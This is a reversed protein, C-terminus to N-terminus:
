SRKLSLIKQSREVIDRKKTHCGQSCIKHPQNFNPNHRCNCYYCSIQYNDKDHPKTNDIRDISFQYCCYPKWKVTLVIDNCVWCRSNQKRLMEIVDDTTIDGALDFRQKDYAKHGSIKRQINQKLTGCPRCDLCYFCAYDENDSHCCLRCLMVKCKACDPPGNIDDEKQCILGNCKTIYGERLCNPCHDDNLIDFDEYDHLKEKTEPDYQGLKIGMKVFDNYYGSKWHKYKAHILEDLRNTWFCKDLLIDTVGKYKILGVYIGEITGQIKDFEEATPKSRKGQKIDSAIRGMGFYDFIVSNTIKFDQEKKIAKVLITSTKM